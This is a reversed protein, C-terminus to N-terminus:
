ARPHATACARRLDDVDIPVYRATMGLNAHLMLENITRINAGGQFLLSAFTVRLSHPSLHKGALEVLDPNARITAAHVREIIGAFSNNGMQPVDDGVFLWPIDAKWCLVPRAREVYTRLIVIAWDALPLVRGTKGKERDVRVEGRVLDLQGLTTDRLGSRRRGSAIALALLALDRVCLAWRNCGEPYQAAEASVTQLLATAEQLSLGDKRVPNIPIRPLAITAAVDVVVEGRRYLWSWFSKMIALRTVQTTRALLRGAHGRDEEAIFRQYARLDDATATLPTREKATLWADVRGLHFGYNKATTIRGALRLHELFADISHHM